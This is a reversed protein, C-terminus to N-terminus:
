RKHRSPSFNFKFNNVDNLVWLVFNFKIWKCTIKKTRECLCRWVSILKHPNLFSNELSRHLSDFDNISFHVWLVSFGRTTTKNFKHSRWKLAEISHNISIENWKLKKRRLELKHNLNNHWQVRALVENIDSLIGEPM